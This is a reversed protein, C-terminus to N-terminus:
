PDIVGLVFWWCQVHLAWSKALAQQPVLPLSSTGELQLGQVTGGIAQM